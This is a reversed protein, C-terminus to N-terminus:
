SWPHRGRWPTGCRKPRDGKHPGIPRACPRSWAPCHKVMEGESEPGFRQPGEFVHGRNQGPGRPLATAVIALGWAPHRCRCRGWAPRAGAGIQDSGDVACAAQGGKLPPPPPPLPSSKPASAAVVVVGHQDRGRVSRFWRSCAGGTWRQTVTTATAIAVVKACQSRRCCGWAPRAGAGIRVTSQV